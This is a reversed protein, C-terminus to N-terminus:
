LVGEILFTSSLPFFLFFLFSFLSSFLPGSVDNGTWRRVVVSQLASREHWYYLPNSGKPMGFVSNVLLNWDGLAYTVFSHRFTPGLAKVSKSDTDM